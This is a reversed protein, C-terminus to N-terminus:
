KKPVLYVVTYVTDFSDEVMTLFSYPPLSAIFSEARSLSRFKKSTKKTKM